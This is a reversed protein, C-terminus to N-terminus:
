FHKLASCICSSNHWGLRGAGKVTALGSHPRPNEV